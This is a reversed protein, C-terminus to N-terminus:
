SRPAQHETTSLLLHTLLEKSLAEYEPKIAESPVAWRDEQCRAAQVHCIIAKDHDRELDVIVPAVQLYRHIVQATPPVHANHPCLCCVAARRIGSLARHHHM